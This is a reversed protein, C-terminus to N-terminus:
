NSQYRPARRLSLLLRHRKTKRDIFVYLSEGAKSARCLRGRLSRAPQALCVPTHGWLVRCPFGGLALLTKDIRTILCPQPLCGSSPTGATLPMWRGAPRCRESHKHNHVKHLGHHLVNDRDQLALSSTGVMVPPCHNSM